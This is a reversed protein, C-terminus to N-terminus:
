TIKLWNTSTCERYNSLKEFSTGGVKEHQFNKRIGTKMSLFIKEEDSKYLWRDCWCVTAPSFSSFLNETTEQRQFDSYILVLLQRDSVVFVVSVYFFYMKLLDFIISLDIFNSFNMRAQRDSCEFLQFLLFSNWEHSSQSIFPLKESRFSM